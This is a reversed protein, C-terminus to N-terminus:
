QRVAMQVLGVINTVDVKYNKFSQICINFLNESTAGKDVTEPEKVDFVQVLEWFRTVIM